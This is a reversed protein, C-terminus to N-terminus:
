EQSSTTHCATHIHWSQRSPRLQRLPHNNYPLYVRDLSSENAELTRKINELAQRTEAAIGGPVLSGTGPAVGIHGSLFLLNGVLAVDSFPLNAQKNSEATYYSVAPSPGAGPSGCGYLFILAVTATLPSKNM